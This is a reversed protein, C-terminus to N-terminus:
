MELDDSRSRIKATEVVCLTTMMCNGRYLIKMLASVHINATCLGFIRVTWFLGMLNCDERGTQGM